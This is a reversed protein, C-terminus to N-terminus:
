MSAEAFIVLDDVIFLQSIVHGRSAIRFSHWKGQEIELKISQALHDMYLFLYILPFHIGKGSVRLHCLYNQCLITGFCMPPYMLFVSCLSIGSLMWFVLVLWYTMLLIWM